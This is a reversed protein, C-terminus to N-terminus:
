ALTSDASVAGKTAVMIYKAGNQQLSNIANALHQAATILYAQANSGCTNPPPAPSETIENAAYKIDNGGSSIYFLETSKPKHAKLFNAIQQATPIANAFGCDSVPCPTNPLANRAGSFAYNTGHQNQPSATVGLLTALEESNMPGPSSTPKGIGWKEFGTQAGRKTPALYFDVYSDGTYPAIRFSGADVSSDGFVWLNTFPNAIAPVAVLAFTLSAIAFGM